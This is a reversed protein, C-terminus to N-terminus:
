RRRGIEAGDIADNIRRIVTALRDGIPLPALHALERIVETLVGVSRATDEELKRILVERDSVGSRRIVDAIRAHLQERSMAQRRQTWVAKRSPGDITAGCPGCTALRNRENTEWADVPVSRRCRPCRFGLIEGESCTVAAYTASCLGPAISAVPTGCCPVSDEGEAPAAHVVQDSVAVEM